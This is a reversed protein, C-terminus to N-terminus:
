AFFVDISSRVQKAVLRALKMQRVLSTITSNRGNQEVVVIRLRLDEDM